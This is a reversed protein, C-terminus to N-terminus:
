SVYGSKTNAQRTITRRREGGPSVNTTVGPNQDYDWDVEYGTNFTMNILTNNVQNTLDVCYYLYCRKPEWTPLKTIENGCWQLSQYETCGDVDVGQTVELLSGLLPNLDFTASVDSGITQGITFTMTKADVDVVATAQDNCCEVSGNGGTPLSTSFSIPTCNAQNITTTLISGDVSHTGSTLCQSPSTISSLDVSDSVTAGGSQDVSTILTTGNLTTSLGTNCCGSPLTITDSVTSGNSQTVTLTLDNGNLTLTAGTNCCEVSGGGTLGSIDVSDTVTVGNSQNVAVVLEGDLIQISMGTNCCQEPISITDSVTAGNSQTVTVTLDTDNLTLGAGTNCCETGGGGGGVLDSIDVQDTFTQGNTQSVSVVLDNGVRTITIGTNCCVQSSILNNLDISGVINPGDTQSLVTTLTTGNISYNISENCCGTGGNSAPLTVSDTVVNGDTQTISATLVGNVIDLSIGTNCCGSANILSSLDFSDSLTGGNTQSVTGTLMTGLLSLSLDNNCCAIANVLPALDVSGVVDSAGDQMVTTTLVSGNVAYTINEVCCGSGGALGNLDVTDSYSQGSSQNVTTTLFGNNLATDVGTNCCQDQAQPILPGLDVSTQVNNGDSQSVTTSLVTGFLSQDIGTNCCSDPIDDIRDDILARIDSESLTEDKIYQEAIAKAILEVDSRNVFDTKCLCELVVKKIRDDSFLRDVICEIEKVSIQEPILSKVMLQIEYESHLQNGFCTRVWCNVDDETVQKPAIEYITKHVFALIAEESLNWADMCETFICKVDDKDLVHNHLMDALLSKVEDRGVLGESIIYQAILANIHSDHVADPIDIGEICKEILCKIEDLEPRPNEIFFRQVISLIEADTRVMSDVLNRVDSESLSEDRICEQMLLKVFSENLMDYGSLQDVVINRVETYDLHQHGQNIVVPECRCSSFGCKNCVHQQQANRMRAVHALHKMKNSM